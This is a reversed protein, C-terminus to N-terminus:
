VDRRCHPCASACCLFYQPLSLRLVVFVSVPQPVACCVCCLLYQPLSFCLVVFVLALQPVTCCISLRPGLFVRTTLAVGWGSYM